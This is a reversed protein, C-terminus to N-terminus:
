SPRQREWLVSLMVLAHATWLATRVWNTGVLRRIADPDHGRGLTGHLPVSLFFTAAWTGAALAFGAWLLGHQAALTGPRLALLGASGLELVMPLLVVGTMRQTHAAHYTEWSDQGVLAFLAYHVWQVTWIVGTMYWASLTCILLLAITMQTHM